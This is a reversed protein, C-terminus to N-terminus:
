EDYKKHSIIKIGLEGDPFLKVMGRGEGMEQVAQLMKEGVLPEGQVTDMVPVSGLSCLRLHEPRLHEWQFLDVTEVSYPCRVEELAIMVRMSSLSPPFVLVKVTEVM